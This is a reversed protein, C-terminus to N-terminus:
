GEYSRSQIEGRLQVKVIIDSFCTEYVKVFKDAPWNQVIGALVVQALGELWNRRVPYFENRKSLQVAIIDVEKCFRGLTVIEARRVTENVFITHLFVRM